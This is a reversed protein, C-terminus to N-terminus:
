SLGLGYVPVNDYVTEGIWGIHVCVYLLFLKLWNWVQTHQRDRM